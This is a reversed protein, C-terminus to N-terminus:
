IGSRQPFKCPEAITVPATLGGTVPSLILRYWSSEFGDVVPATQLVSVRPIYAYICTIIFRTEPAPKTSYVSLLSHLPIVGAHHAEQALGFVALDDVYLDVFACRHCQLNLLNNM